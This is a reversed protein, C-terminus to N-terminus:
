FKDAAQNSAVEQFILRGDPRTPIDLGPELISPLYSVGDSAPQVYQVLSVLTNGDVDGYATVTFCNNCGAAVNVDYDFFVQGEPRWGVGSFETDALPTWPRQSPGLSGAGPGPQSVAVGVFGNFEAFHSQQLRAIASVNAMAEARKSRAQYFQFSPIAIAALIGIIAVVVMLEILTFGARHSHLPRM